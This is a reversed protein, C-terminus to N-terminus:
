AGKNVLLPMQNVIVESAYEQKGSFGGIFRQWWIAIGEFLNPANVNECAILDQTAVVQNRQKFTATGVKDGTRVDETLDKYEIEPSVNGEVDFITVSANPDAFTVNVTKDIWGKHPIKAIVPVQSTQGKVTMSVTETSYSLPFVIEHNYVWDFLEQTDSFRTYNDESDLVIAYLDRGNRNCAGAFCAGALDTFGTKIGCAGEYTGLLEDTSTLEIGEDKGDRKVTITEEEAAVIKRFTENQMVKTAMAAVDAATSHQDGVWEGDDLGHPNTFLTDTCYLKAARDNMAAVFADYSSQADTGGLKAGVHEALAIAADNGSSLLLAKLATEVNLVDGAQLSASSEGVSAARESVTLTDALDSNELTVLATMIKTISAIKTPATGNRDFYVHGGQDVVYAYEAFVNPCQAMSLGRSEVSEGVVLDAKRVDAFADQAAVCCCASALLMAVCLAAFWRIVASSSRM